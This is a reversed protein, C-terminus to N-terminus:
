PVCIYINDGTTSWQHGKCYNIKTFYLGKSDSKTSETVKEACLISFYEVIGWLIRGDCSKTQFLFRSFTPQGM